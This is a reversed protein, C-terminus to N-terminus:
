SVLRPIHKGIIDLRSEPAFNGVGSSAKPMRDTIM